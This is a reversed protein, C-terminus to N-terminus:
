DPNSLRLLLQAEGNKLSGLLKTRMESRDAVYRYVEDWHACYIEQQLDKSVASILWEFEDLFKQKITLFKTGYVKNSVDSPEPNLRVLCQQVTDFSSVQLYRLNFELDQHRQYTEDFGNIMDVFRRRYTATNTHLYHKKYNLMLIEETLNGKVYRAENNDPSNWGLFGCYVAGISSHLKALRVVSESLRGQLYEDDDDLFTIYEGTAHMLGSNRAAAGNRNISHAVYRILVHPYERRIQDVVYETQVNYHSGKGNDSVVIVEKNEYDQSAVSRLARLLNGPRKYSPIITSVRSKVEVIKEVSVAKLRPTGEIGLGLLYEVHSVVDSETLADESTVQAYYDYKPVAGHIASDYDSSSTDINSHLENHIPRLGDSSLGFIAVSIPLNRHRIKSYLLSAQAAHRVIVALSIKYQPYEFKEVNWKMRTGHKFQNRGGRITSTGVDPMVLNPFAVFCKGLNQEYIDGLTLHDFATEFTSELEILNDFVSSDIAIAFSGCTDLSRPFYYGESKAKEIDVSNWDYQSAGLQLVKWDSPVTRVFDTFQTEFNDSLIVDDELILIKSFGRSKADNMIAIYTYIYGIAGASEIFGKGREIELQNYEPFRSLTGLKRSEYRRWAELAEGEYGNIAEFLEFRIGHSILHKTIKLRDEIQHKLNVVYVNDFYQNVYSNEVSEKSVQGIHEKCRKINYSVLDSGYKSAAIEFFKLANEYNGSEYYNIASKLIGNNM